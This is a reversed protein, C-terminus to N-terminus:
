IDSNTEECFHDIIDLIFFDGVETGKLIYNDLLHKGESM